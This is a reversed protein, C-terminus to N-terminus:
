VGKPMTVMECACLSAMWDLSLANNYQKKTYHFVSSEVTYVILGSMPLVSDLM